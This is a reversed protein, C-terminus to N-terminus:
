HLASGLRLLNRKHVAPVPVAVYQLIFCPQPPFWAADLGHCSVEQWAGDVQVRMPVECGYASWAEFSQRRALPRFPCAPPTLSLRRRSAHLWPLGQHLAGRPSPALKGADASPHPPPSVVPRGTHLLQRWHQVAVRHGWVASLPM